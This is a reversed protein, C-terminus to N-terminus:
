KPVKGSTIDKFDNIFVDFRGLRYQVIAWLLFFITKTFKNIDNDEMKYIPSVVRHMFTEEKEQGTVYMEAQTLACTDDNVSWHYFLFPILISYFELNRRNNTFPVIIIAILFVLHIWFIINM